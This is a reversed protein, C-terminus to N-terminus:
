GHAESQGACGSMLQGAPQISGLSLARHDQRIQLLTRYRNLLSTPDALESEVNVEPHDDNVPQWPTGATFGANASSDWQMPTRIREDPKAGMMGIEEGYYIFPVGPQTLLLTAAVKAKDM